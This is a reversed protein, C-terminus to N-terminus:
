QKKVRVPRVSYGCCRYSFTTQFNDSGFTLHFSCNSYVEALSRIWYYGESNIEYFDGEYRWGKAPLFLNNGNSKSTISWGWVGNKNTWTSTVNCTDLLEAFQESSPIQWGNGWNATAADDKPMLETEGDVIGYIDNTCYKTIKSASGNCLTYTNWSYNSKPKTEGWAFYDGDGEPSNSGVNCTAWLTGSPLGLDVWEHEDFTISDLQSINYEITQNGAMHLVVVQAKATHLSAAMLLLALLRRMEKM